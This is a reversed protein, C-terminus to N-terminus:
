CLGTDSLGHLLFGMRAREWMRSRYCADREIDRQVPQEVVQVRHFSVDAVTHEDREPAFATDAEDDFERVLAFCANWPCTKAGDFRHEIIAWGQRPVPDLEASEGGVVILPRKAFHYMGCERRAQLAIGSQRGVRLQQLQPRAALCGECRKWRAVDQLSPDQGSQVATRARVMGQQMFLAYRSELQTAHPVGAPNRDCIRNQAGSVSGIRGRSGRRLKNGGMFEVGTLM